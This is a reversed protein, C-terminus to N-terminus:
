GPYTTDEQVRGFAQALGALVVSVAQLRDLDGSLKIDGALLADHVTLHGSALAASVSYSLRLTVDCQTASEVPHVSLRSDGLEIVHRVDGRAGGTVHLELSFSLAADICPSAAELQDM